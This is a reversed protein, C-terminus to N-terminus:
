VDKDKKLFLTGTFPFSVHGTSLQKLNLLDMHSLKVPVSPVLLRGVEPLSLGYVGILM